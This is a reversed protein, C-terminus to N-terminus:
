FYRHQKTLTDNFNKDNRTAYICIDINASFIHTAKCFSSMNKEAFMGSNSITNVLVTLMKVM